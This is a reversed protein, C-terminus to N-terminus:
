LRSSTVINKYAIDIYVHLFVVDVQEVEDSLVTAGYRAPSGTRVTEAAHSAIATSAALAVAVRLLYRITAVWITDHGVSSLVM